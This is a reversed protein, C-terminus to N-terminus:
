KSSKKYWEVVKDVQMQPLYKVKLNREGVGSRCSLRLHAFSKQELWISQRRELLQISNKPVFYSNKSTIQNNQIFVYGQDMIALRARRANLYAPALWVISSMLILILTLILSAKILFLGIVIDTLVSFILANRLDYYYTRSNTMNTQWDSTPIDPFFKEFFQTVKRTEIVPMVIIDKETEGKQSNSIIVLKISAIHLLRRLLTQKVVVAQVRSQSISTKKTKFFGYQMEFKNQNLTLHFHYYKAILAFVSVVYFILVVLLLGVVIIVWGWHSFEQAAAMYMEKSIGQQAKGYIALVVLLGSLFAPSTLSFKILEPWTIAYSQEDENPTDSHDIEEIKKEFISTKFKNRYNDLEDKLEVPVALLSVEPGESHGATEIELQELGFPKLFFWQNATVNQIRDYPIHNVKKVFVGNKVLIEKNFFQYSFTFYSVLNWVIVAIFTAMLGVITWLKSQPYVGFAFIVVPILLNKMSKYFYFLLAVPSLRHPKSIM